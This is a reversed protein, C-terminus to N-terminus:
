IKLKFCQLFPLLTGAEMLLSPPVLTTMHHMLDREENFRQPANLVICEELRKASSEPAGYRCGAFDKPLAWQVDYMLWLRLRHNKQCTAM